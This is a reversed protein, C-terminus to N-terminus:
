NGLEIEAILISVSFSDIPQHKLDSLFANFLVKLAKTLTHQHDLDYLSLDLTQVIEQLVSVSNQKQLQASM